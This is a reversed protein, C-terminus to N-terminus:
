ISPTETLGVSQTIEQCWWCNRDTCEPGEVTFNRSLHAPETHYKIFVPTFIKIKFNGTIQSYQTINTFAPM